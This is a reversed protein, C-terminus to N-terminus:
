CFSVGKCISSLKSLRYCYWSLLVTHQSWTSLIMSVMHWSCSSWPPVTNPAIPNRFFSDPPSNSKMPHMFSAWYYWEGFPISASPNSYYLSSSNPLLKWGSLIYYVGSFDSDFGLCEINLLSSSSGWGKPLYCRQCHDGDQRNKINYIFRYHKFNFNIM